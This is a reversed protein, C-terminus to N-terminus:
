AVKRNSGVSVDDPQLDGNADWDWQAVLDPRARLTEGTRCRPCGTPRGPRTRDSVKARWSHGGKCRWWLARQSAARVEHPDVGPNALSDFQAILLPYHTLFLGRRTQM